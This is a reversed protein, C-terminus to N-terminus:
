GEISGRTRGNKDSFYRLQGAVAGWTGCVSTQSVRVEEGWSTEEDIVLDFPM